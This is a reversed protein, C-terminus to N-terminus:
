AIVHIDILINCNLLQFFIFVAAKHSKFELTLKSLRRTLLGILCSPASIIDSSISYATAFLFLIFKRHHIIVSIM